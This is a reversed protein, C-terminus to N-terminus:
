SIGLKILFANIVTWLGRRHRRVNTKATNQSKDVDFDWIDYVNLTPRNPSAARKYKSVCM